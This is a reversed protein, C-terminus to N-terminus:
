RLAQAASECIAEIKRGDVTRISVFPEPIGEMEAISKEFWAVDHWRGCKYGTRRYTGSRQFGLALHLAESKVNPVTVGAYVNKVNQLALIEMLAGYLTRGVGRGHYKERVYVSLEANWQYAAREKQRHAYAYGAMVGHIECVLYPYDAGFERIRAAFAEVSPAEYEFTIPTEVYPRYIELLAAADATSARRILTM